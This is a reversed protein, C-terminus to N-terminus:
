EGGEVLEAPVTVTDGLKASVIARCAAILPTPGQCVHGVFGAGDCEFRSKWRWDAGHDSDTAELAIDYKEILPGGQSWIRSPSWQQHHNFHSPKTVDDPEDPDPTEMMLYRDEEIYRIAGIGFIPEKWQIASAVAWDLAAGSLESVKVEVMKM